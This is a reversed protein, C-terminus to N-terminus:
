GGRGEYIKDLIQEWSAGQMEPHLGHGKFSARRLQFRPRPKNKESLVRRLGQEVLARLTTGERRAMKRADDLLSETIDLTTKM